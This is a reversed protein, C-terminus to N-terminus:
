GDTQNVGRAAKALIRRASLMVPEDIMKGRYTCAAGGAAVYAAMVGQAHEIEDKSPSLGANIADVQRPHIALKGTFGLARVRACEATLGADDQIDLYPVDFLGLGASAAAQVLRSRGFLLPEWALTARLDAALDVGGFAMAKLMPSARAIRMAQELGPASEILAMLAVKAGATGCAALHRAVLAVEEASEVKPLLLLDPAFGEKALSTLAALDLLGDHTYISNIRICIAMEPRTAGERSRLWAMVGSRAAAKGSPAVADELDAIFGDAATSCAKAFRDPRNGPTFLLSRILNLDIMPRGFTPDFITPTSALTLAVYKPM